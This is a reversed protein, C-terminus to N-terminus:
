NQRVGKTEVQYNNQNNVIPVMANVNDADRKNVIAGNNYEHILSYEPPNKDETDDKQGEDDLEVANNLVMQNMNALKLVKNYTQLLGITWMTAVNNQNSNIHLTKVTNCKHWKLVVRNYYTTCSTGNPTPYKNNLEQAWNTTVPTM